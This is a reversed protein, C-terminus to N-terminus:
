IDTGAAALLEGALTETGPPADVGAASAHGRALLSARSREFLLAHLHAVPVEAAVDVGTVLPLIELHHHREFATRGPERREQAAEFRRVPAFVSVSQLAPRHLDDVAPQLRCAGHRFCGQPSMRRATREIRSEGVHARNIEPAAGAPDVRRDIVTIADAGVHLHVHHVRDTVLPASLDDGPRLEGFLSDLDVPDRGSRLEGDKTRAMMQGIPEPLFEGREPTELTLEVGNGDPDSLYTTESVLHDTPSNPYRLTFLRGIVRALEQRTPVHLAVHYLGTRRPVVPGAAGPHLVVLARGGSAASGLRVPGGAAAGLSVPGQGAGAGEGDLVVLGLVGTWFALFCALHIGLFWLCSSVRARAVNTPTELAPPTPPPPELVAASPSQMPSFTGDKAPAAM